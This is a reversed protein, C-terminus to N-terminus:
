WLFAQARLDHALEDNNQQDAASVMVIGFHTNNAGGYGVEVLGAGGTNNV